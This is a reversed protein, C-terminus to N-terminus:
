PKGSRFLQTEIQGLYQNVYFLDPEHKIPRVRITFDPESPNTRDFLVLGLGSIQCLSELRLLTDEDSDAPLVLYVLNSYLQYACAQGFGETLAAQSTDYKVEASVVVPESKIVDSRRSELVGIVDPTAWKDGFAHGGLPIARTCEELDDILFDAFPQYFAEEDVSPKTTSTTAATVLSASSASLSPAINRFRIHRYLGRAPKYVEEPEVEDLNWIASRITNYNAAPLESNVARYLQTLRLGARNADRGLIELAKPRIQAAGISTV